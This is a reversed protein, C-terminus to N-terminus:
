LLWLKESRKFALMEHTSKIIYVALEILNHNMVSKVTYATQKGQYISSQLCLM